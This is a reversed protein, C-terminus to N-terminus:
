AAKDEQLVKSRDLALYMLAIAEDIKQAEALTISADLLAQLEYM